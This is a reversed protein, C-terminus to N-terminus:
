ANRVLDSLKTFFKRRNLQKWYHLFEQYRELYQRQCFSGFAEKVPQLGKRLSSPFIMEQLSTQWVYFDHMEGLLSQIKRISEIFPGLRKRYFPSFFELTYRLHKAAIRMQHLEDFNQPDHLHSEFALVEDIRKMIKKQALSKITFHKEQSLDEKKLRRAITALTKEKKFDEIARILKPQLAQRRRKVLALMKLSSKREVGKLFQPFHEALFDIKVDLDRAPGTTRALKRISQRWRKLDSESFKNKFVWLATRLRRSAVRLDHLCELNKATCACPLQQHLEQLYKEITQTAFLDVSSNKPLIPTPM